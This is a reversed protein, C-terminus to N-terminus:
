EFYQEEMQKLDINLEPNKNAIETLKELILKKDKAYEQSSKAMDINSDPFTFKDPSIFKLRGFEEFPLKDPSLSISVGEGLTTLPTISGDAILPPLPAFTTKPDFDIKPNSKGKKYNCHGVWNLFTYVLWCRWRSLRTEKLMEYLIVDAANQSIYGEYNIDHILWCIPMHGYLGNKKYGIKPIIINLLNPGSRFNTKYGIAINYVLEDLKNYNLKDNPNLSVKCEIHSNVEWMGYKTKEYESVPLPAPNYSPFKNILYM